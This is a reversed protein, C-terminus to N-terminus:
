QEQIREKLLVGEFPAVSYCVGAIQVSLFQLCYTDFTYIIGWERASIKM